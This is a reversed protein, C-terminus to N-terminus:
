AASRPGSEKPLAPREDNQPEDDWWGLARGIEDVTRGVPMDLDSDDFHDAEWDRTVNELETGFDDDTSSM